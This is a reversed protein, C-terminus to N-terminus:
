KVIVTTVPGLGHDRGDRHPLPFFDRLENDIKIIMRDNAGNRNEQYRANGRLYQFTEGFLEHGAIMFDPTPALSPRGGMTATTWQPSSSQEVFVDVARGGRNITAGGGFDKLAGVGIPKGTMETAGHGATLYAFRFDRSSDGIVGSLRSYGASADKGAIAKADKLYVQYRGDATQRVGVNAREKATLHQTVQALARKRGEEDDNVLYLDRGDPDVYKFPNNRAYAYLNFMQPDLMRAPTVIVPDTSTFRGQAASFYRFGFYDLGTECESLRAADM